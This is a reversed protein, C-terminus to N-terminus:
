PSVERWGTVLRRKTVKHAKSEEILGHKEHYTIVDDAYKETTEILEGKLSLYHREDEALVGARTLADLVLDPRAALLDRVFRDGDFWGSSAAHPWRSRCEPGEPCTQDHLALLGAQRLADVQADTPDSM